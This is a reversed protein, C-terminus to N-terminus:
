WGYTGSLSRKGSPFIERTWRRLSSPRRPEHCHSDSGGIYMIKDPGAIRLLWIRLQLLLKKM